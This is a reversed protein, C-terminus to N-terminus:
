TKEEENIKMLYEEMKKNYMKWNKEEIIFVITMIAISAVIAGIILELIM